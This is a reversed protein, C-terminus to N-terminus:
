ADVEDIYKTGFGLHKQPFFAINPGM